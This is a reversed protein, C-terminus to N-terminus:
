FEYGCEKGFNSWVMQLSLLENVNNGRTKEQKMQKQYM